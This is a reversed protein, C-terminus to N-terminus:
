TAAQWDLVRYTMLTWVAMSMRCCITNLLAVLQRPMFALGRCIAEMTLEVTGM